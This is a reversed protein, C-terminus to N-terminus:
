SYISELVSLVDNKTLPLINNGMRERTFSMESIIELETSKVGWDCLNNKITGESINKIMTRLNDVNTLSLRKILEDIDKIIKNKNIAVLPIIPMSCAVGHPIDFLMTLPYSISHAAATKTNSFALGALNSARVLNRRIEISEPNAKLSEVNELILVIADLAYKTSKDNANRNWIAEFSHSLADLTSIISDKVSLSLTLSPDLLAISPYLADNEVSYKKSNEIDWVTAWKTVESGTGHTTPIFLSNFSTNLNYDNIVLEKINTVNSGISAMVTKATDLVSGGGIAVICDFEIDGCYDIAEQCSEMTPNNQVNDFVAARSFLGDISQRIRTGKSTIILPNTFSNEGIWRHTDDVWSDSEIIKVPNYFM